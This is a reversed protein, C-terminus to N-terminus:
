TMVYSIQDCRQTTGCSLRLVHTQDCPGDGRGNQTDDDATKQHQEREEVPSVLVFIFFVFNGILDPSEGDYM